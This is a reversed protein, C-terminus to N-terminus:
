DDADSGQKCRAYSRAAEVRALWQEEDRRRRESAEVEQQLRARAEPGLRNRPVPPALERELQLRRRQLPVASEQESPEEEEDEEEPEELQWRHALIRVASGDDDVPEITYYAPPFVEEEALAHRQAEDLAQLQDNVIDLARQISRIAVRNGWYRLGLRDCFKAFAIAGRKNAEGDSVATAFLALSLAIAHHPLPLPMRAYPPQLWERAVQLCLREGEQKWGILPPEGDGVPHCLRDLTADLKRLNRGANALRASRLLAYRTTTLLVDTPHRRAKKHEKQYVIHGAKRLAKARPLKPKHSIAYGGNAVSGGFTHYREPAEAHGGRRRIQKVRQWDQKFQTALHQELAIAGAGAEFAKAHAAESAAAQAQVLVGSLVHFEFPTV